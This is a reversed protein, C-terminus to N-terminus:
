EKKLKDHPPNRRVHNELNLSVQKPVGFVEVSEKALEVTNPQPQWLPPEEDDEIVIVEHVVAAAAAKGASGAAGAAGAAGAPGVALSTAAAAAGAATVSGGQLM